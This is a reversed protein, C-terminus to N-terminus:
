RRKGLRVHAWYRLFLEVTAPWPFNWNLRGKGFGSCILTHAVQPSDAQSVGAKPTGPLSTFSRDGPQCDLPPRPGPPGSLGRFGM